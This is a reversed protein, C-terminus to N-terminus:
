FTQLDPPTSPPDGGHQPMTLSCSALSLRAGLASRLRAISACALAQGVGGEAVLSELIERNM